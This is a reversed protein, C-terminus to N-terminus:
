RITEMDERSIRARWFGCDHEHWEVVDVGYRAFRNPETTALFHSCTCDAPRAPLETAVSEYAFSHLMM